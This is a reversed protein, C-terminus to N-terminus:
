GSASDVVPSPALSATPSEALRIDGVVFDRVVLRDSGVTSVLRALLDPRVAVGSGYTRPWALHYDSVDYEARWVVLALGVGADDEYTFPKGPRLELSAILSPTPVLSSQPAGLGLRGDGVMRLERDLGLLPQSGRFDPLGAEPDISARWLRLDGRTIPPLTLARQDGVDRVELVRYRRSVLDDQERFDGHQLHRSEVTGLWCWGDFPKGEAPPLETWSELALTALLLEETARAEVIQDPAGGQAAEEIRRWMASGSGPPLPLAPRPRRRAELALPIMPDDVLSSALRDEWEIPDGIQEGTVLLAARGQAGVAQLIAEIAEEHALFADPWKKGVRDAFEDLQRDLRRKVEDGDLAVEARARVAGSLGNLIDEGRSLRVGAASELLGDLGPPGNWNDDDDDSLVSPLWLESEIDAILGPDPASPAALPPDDNVMRRAIARITLSERTLLETLSEQCKALAEQSGSSELVCLLWTLTSPDSIKRLALSVAPAAKDPYQELLERVAVYSRRKKERSPHALGGVTALALAADLDGPPSVATESDPPIYPHGPVESPDVIPARDSIVEFAEDWATFAARIPDDDSALSQSALAYIVAQSIGYTGYRATAVIAAVEEAVTRNAVISDLESARRLSGIETEGGFTLWGGHGRTRTWTLAYALAALEKLEHRDLGEAVTRLIGSRESFRSAEALSRIASACDDSRGDAVLQLLRYGIINAFRDPSWEPSDADYPRNRWVRLARTIGPMGPPFSEVLSEARDISTSRSSRRLPSVTPGPRPEDLGAISPLHASRAVSNIEFLMEDDRAILQDSNTAGYRVPREDARALLLTPLGDTTQDGNALAAVLRGLHAADSQELPTNLTLRLTGAILPDATEQWERWVEELAKELLWNPDNCEELLEPVALQVLAAPDAKALLSWWRSWAHRTEKLDTHHPVRDCLSQLLAIRRRASAPDLRILDPIPDLVEYITIDKHWGYATLFVCAEQWLARSSAVDGRRLALRSALLRYEALDSYFRRGSNEAIEEAILQDVIEHQTPPAAEVAIRFVFDPPVPGGLEGRMTTTISDSVSKILRLGEDWKDDVLLGLADTITQGIIPHLRYLDCARPDGVFPRVDETLLELAELALPSRQDKTAAEAVCLRSAFRLWCRYWGEGDILAEATAIGIPDTRAVIACTDLWAAIRTEAWQASPEQVSRTLDLLRSRTVSVDAAALDAPDVGLAFLRRLTGIPTGHAAAATAWLRPTGVEPVGEADQALEDAVALCINGPNEVARVLQIAAQWGFTDVVARVVDTAATAHADVWRALDGWNIPSQLNPHPPAAPANGSGADINTRQTDDSESNISALRLRGRIWALDVQRDSADGYSTNDNEDEQQFGEMYPLWPAAAGLEDIVACMQLGARAPMVLRDEDMLRSAVVDSGLLAAPVDAFAVLTSDFREDQYSEAARSMEVFRTVLPWKGLRTAAGVAVALNNRIVSAPFGAAVARVVFERDVFEIIRGDEGSQTLLPLLSRFARADVFLGKSELWSTIRALLASLALADGQFPQRLYRAFSEHYVRVGGQAAREILVPALHDLAADVRHAADPRIERLEVRSLGFDVLAIVDAVWGADAGLSSCLHDYYNTLTGDFPPLAQIATAPDPHTDMMRVAERCLYTTYLANGASRDSLATLFEAAQDPDSIAVDERLEDGTSEVPILSLRSALLRIEDASLGPLSVTSAGTEQLPELHSGPQSLVVVVSGPPINLSALAEAVSRSPDFSSGTRAQVRTIHDLGDVVLAIRRDPELTLSRQLCAMLIDEDAAFRPRQDRVLRPDAEALRGILSGFANELMVRQLREGDADGLYCYHEAILWGNDRLNDFLQKCVWSKGHGPPGVVLLYGGEAARGDAEATLQHVLASRSVEVSQDVPHSRAVAGFDSRLQCRRLLEEATPALLGQRAARAASVMGAAVDVARRDGNPFAEAGVDVRVRALLIQEAAHPATLDLSASPANVEIVLRQCCWDLNPKTLANDGTFLFSFEAQSGESARQKWLSEADFALRTTRMGPLFPGPDSPPTKLVELLRSDSPEIDRVVVRFIADSADHGPGARDALMSSFLRDLRLQRGETTLSDLTLEREDQTTHKFQYRERVGDLDVTTLDDFRDDDVLKEDCRAEVLAGLLVDVLRCAVLLDQYEYGRHAPALSAM